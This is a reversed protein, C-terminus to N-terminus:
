NGKAPCTTSKDEENQKSSKKLKEPHLDKELAVNEPIQESKKDVDVEMNESVNSHVIVGTTDPKLDADSTSIEMSQICESKDDINTADGKNISSDALVTSSIESDKSINSGNKIVSNKEEVVTSSCVEMEELKEGENFSDTNKIDELSNLISSLSQLVEEEKNAKGASQEVKPVKVMVQDIKLIENESISPNNELEKALELLKIFDDTENLEQLPSSTTKDVSDVVEAPSSQESSTKTTYVSEEAVSEVLIKSANQKDQAEHVEDLIGSVINQLDTKENAEDVFREAVVSVLSDLIEKVIILDQSEPLSDTSPRNHRIDDSLKKPNEFYNHDVKSPTEVSKVSVLDETESAANSSSGVSFIFCSPLSTILM